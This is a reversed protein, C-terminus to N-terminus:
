FCKLTDSFWCKYLIEEYSKRTLNTTLFRELSFFSEKNGEFRKIVTYKLLYDRPKRVSRTKKLIISKNSTRPVEIWNKSHFYPFGFCETSLCGRLSLGTAKFFDHFFQKIWIFIVTQFFKFKSWNIMVRSYYIFLLTKIHRSFTQSTSFTAHLFQKIKQWINQIKKTNM